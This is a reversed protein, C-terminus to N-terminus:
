GEEASPQYFPPCPWIIKLHPLACILVDVHFGNEKWALALDNILFEEPYFVEGIILIRNREM